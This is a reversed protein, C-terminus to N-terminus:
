ESMKRMRNMMIKRQKEPLSMIHNIFKHKDVEKQWIKLARVETRELTEDPKASMETKLRAYSLLGLEELTIGM